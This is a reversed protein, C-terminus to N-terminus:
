KRSEKKLDNYIQVRSINFEYAIEKALMKQQYRMEAVRKARKKRAKKQTEKITWRKVIGKKTKSLYSYFTEVTIGMAFACEKSTGDLYVLEDRKNDWVSYCNAATM